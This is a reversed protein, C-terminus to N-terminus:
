QCSFRLVPGNGQSHCDLGTDYKRNAKNSNEPVSRICSESMEHTVQCKWILEGIFM